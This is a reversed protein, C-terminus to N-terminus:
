GGGAEGTRYLGLEEIRQAVEPALQERWEGGAAIAERVRSSSIEDFAEPMKVRHIRERCDAPPAYEGERSAVLLRFDNLREAFPINDGYDWEVVRKAADRGCILYIAAQPGLVARFARAFDIFLVGDPSAVTFPERRRVLDELMAMRDAFSAEGYPKHPFAKPLLFVVQDLRYQELAAEAVAAHALTPPNFAGPFLGLRKGIANARM